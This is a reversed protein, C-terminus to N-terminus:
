DPRPVFPQNQIFELRPQEVVRPDAALRDLWIQVCPFPFQLSEDLIECQVGANIETEEGDDTFKNEYFDGWLGIKGDAQLAVCYDWIEDYGKLAESVLPEDCFDRFYDLIDVFMLEDNIRVIPRYLKALKM